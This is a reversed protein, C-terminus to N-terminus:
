NKRCILKAGEIAVITLSEGTEFIDNEDVGRASWMQGRVKVLGCGAYNDVTEIVKCKEGIIEDITINSAESPTRKFLILFVTAVSALLAGIGILINWDM